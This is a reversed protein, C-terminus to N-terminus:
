GTLSGPFGKLSFPSGCRPCGVSSSWLLVNDTRFGCSACMDDLREGHIPCFRSLQWVLRHYPSSNTLCRFCWRVDTNWGTAALTILTPSVGRSVFLEACRLQAIHPRDVLGEDHQLVHDIFANPKVWNICGARSLYSGFSEWDNVDGGLPQPLILNSMNMLTPFCTGAAM